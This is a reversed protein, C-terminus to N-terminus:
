KKWEVLRGDGQDDQLKAEREYSGANTNKRGDYTSVLEGIGVAKGLKAPAKQKGRTTNRITRSPM